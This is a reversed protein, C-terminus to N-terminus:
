KSISQNQKENFKGKEAAHEERGSRGNEQGNPVQLSKLKYHLGRLSIGLLDAARTRNGHVRDLTKLILDREAEKLSGLWRSEEPVAALVRTDSPPLIQALSAIDLTDGDSMVSWREICNELERVNGPWDYSLLVGMTRPTIRRIQRKNNRNYKKVFHDVLAPIEEKRARLPPIHLYIVELRYLLDERFTGEAAMQRLNRHTAAIIRVDVKISQRGGVKRFERTQIVRLLKAQLPPSLEGVEDLLITGKHALQFIGDRDSVASTFSGKVHGFMESEMLGEPIAACDFVLLPHEARPGSYHINRAVQEKGTGSEGYICLNADAHAFKAASALVAQMLSSTAVLNDFPQAPSPVSPAEPEATNMGSQLLARRIVAVLSLRDVPKSIFDFAGARICQEAVEEDGYGTIIIVPIRLGRSQVFALVERGGGDPMVLDCLIARYSEADLLELAEATTGITQVEIPLDKMLLQRMIERQTSDDDVIM